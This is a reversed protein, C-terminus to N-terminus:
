SASYSNVLAQNALLLQAVHYPRIDFPMPRLDREAVRVANDLLEPYTLSMLTEDSAMYPREEPHSMADILDNHALIPGSFRTAEIHYQTLEDVEVYLQLIQDTPYNQGEDVKHTHHTLAHAATLESLATRPLSKKALVYSDHPHRRQKYKSYPLRFDVFKALVVDQCAHKGVDHVQAGAILPVAMEHGLSATFSVMAAGIATRKSHKQTGIDLKSSLKKLLDEAGRVEDQKRIQNWYSEFTVAM